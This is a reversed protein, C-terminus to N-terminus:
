ARASSDVDQCIGNTIGNWNSEGSNVVSNTAPCGGLIRFTKEISFWTWIGRENAPRSPADAKPLGALGSDALDPGTRDPRRSQTCPLRVTDFTFPRKLFKTPLSRNRFKAFALKEASRKGNGKTKEVPAFTLPSLQGMGLRDM